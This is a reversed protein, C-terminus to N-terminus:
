GLSRRAKVGQCLVGTEAPSLLSIPQHAQFFQLCLTAFSILWPHLRTQAFGGKPNPPLGALAEVGDAGSAAIPEM